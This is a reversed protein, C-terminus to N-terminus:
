TRVEVGGPFADGHLPVGLKRALREAREAFKPAALAIFSAHAEALQGSAAAPDGRAMVLAALDLRTVAVEFRSQIATLTELADALCAGAAPLEGESLAFRGLV